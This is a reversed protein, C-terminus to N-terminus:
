RARFVFAHYITTPHSFCIFPLMCSFQHSFYRPPPLSFPLGHHPFDVRNAKRAKPGPSHAKSEELELGTQASTDPLEVLRQAVARGLEYGREFPPMGHPSHASPHTTAHLGGTSSGSAGVGRPRPTRSRSKGKIGFGLPSAGRPHVRPGNRQQQQRAATEEDSFKRKKHYKMM